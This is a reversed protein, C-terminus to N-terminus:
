DEAPNETRYRVVEVPCPAHTVVYTSVSGLLLRGMRGRGKDGVFVASAHEAAAVIAPGPDGDVVAVSVCLGARRLIEASEAAVEALHFRQRTDDDRIVSYAHEQAYTSEELATTVPVLTEVVSVIQVETGIPWSRAAVSRIAAEAEPSGDTGVVIRPPDCAIPEGARVVRVSCAAKHILELAVSGLFLRAVASRGHSGVVVLDPRWWHVTELIVKSPSGWLAESAVTWRPFYTSIRDAASEALAEANSLKSRWSHTEPKLSPEAQPLGDTSVCVVLAEAEDPLGARRLDDIAADASACGDYAVLIKM